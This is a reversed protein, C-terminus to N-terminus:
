VASAQISVQPNPMPPIEAEVEVEVTDVHVEGSVGAQAEVDGVNTKSQMEVDTNTDAVSKFDSGKPAAAGSDKGTVLMVIGVLLLVFGISGIVIVVIAWDALGDDDSSTSYTASYLTLTSAAPVTFTYGGSTKIANLASVFASASNASVATQLQSLTLLATDVVMTFTVDLSRRSSAGVATVACGTTYALTSTDYLTVGSAGDDTSAAYAGKSSLQFTTDSTWDSLSKSSM